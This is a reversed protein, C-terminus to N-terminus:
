AAKRMEYALRDSATRHHQADLEIGLWDRGQQRAAVLSSGSGCFPDLVLGRQPCFSEILPTLASVPKQTPHYRNGIHEFDIVDPIVWDPISVHGKALLYASEHHRTLYRQSSAYRKRFVIHGVVRFGAKAWASSFQQISNFGYFSVCYTGFKMLRFIEAFAPEIWAANDDNLVQRGTRDRYRTVYPPDTLVFDVSNGPMTRMVKICDSM